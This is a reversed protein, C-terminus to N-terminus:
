DGYIEYWLRILNKDVLGSKVAPHGSKMFENFNRYVPLVKEFLQRNKDYKEVTMADNPGPTGGKINLNALNYEFPMDLAVGQPTVPQSGFKKVLNKISKAEFGIQNPASKINPDSALVNKYVTTLFTRNQTNPKPSASTKGIGYLAAKREEPSLTADANIADAKIQWPSKKAAPKEKPPAPLQGTLSFETYAKEGGPFKNQKLLEDAVRKRAEWETESKIPTELWNQIRAISEKDAREQEREWRRKSEAQAEAEKRKAEEEQRRKEKISWMQNLTARIGGWYDPTPSLPNYWPNGGALQQMEQPDTYGGYSRPM